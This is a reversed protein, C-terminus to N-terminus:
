LKEKLAVCLPAMDKRKKIKDNEIRLLAWVLMYGSSIYILYCCLHWLINRGQQQWMNEIYALGYLSNRTEEYASAESAYIAKEKRADEGVDEV